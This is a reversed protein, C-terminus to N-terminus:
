IGVSFRVCAGTELKLVYMGPALDKISLPSEGNPLHCVAMVRGAADLVQANSAHRVRITVEDVAPNPFLQVSNQSWEEVGNIVGVAASFSATCGNEDTITLIYFGPPLNELNLETTGNSWEYSWNGPNDLEVTISGDSSSATSAATANLTAVPNFAPVRSDQFFNFGALMALPACGGHDYDGGNFIQVSTSGNSVFTDYANVSNLYIVQDDAQCYYINTPVQPIWDMVDNDELAIRIPHNPDNEFAELVEPLLAQNPVDPFYSNITGMGTNGDFVTPIIAAYEPLFVDELSEYLNGYVEQYSLVVYPLYGPTPYPQDSTIVEAQAGSIDYPGSMLASATITFEDSVETEIKRQLAATAHGGQSYGWIFLQGDFTYELQEQLDQAARLLDLAANAESEAHVYLHFGEGEGLGIYDPLTIAYGVSAYLIGLDLEGGGTSPADTKKAMTGHQYSSLPLPCTVGSPLCLAGTALVSDGSPHPTLYHIQYFDVEYELPLFDAPIGFGSVIDEVENVTYHDILEVSIVQSWGALSSLIGALVILQKM